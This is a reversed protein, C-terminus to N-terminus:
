FPKRAVIIMNSSPFDLLTGDTDLIESVPILHEPYEAQLYQESQEITFGFEKLKRCYDTETLVGYLEQTEREASEWGWTLTYLLEMASALTMSYEFESLKTFSSKRLGETESYFPAKRKYMELYKVADKNKLRVIVKKSWETPMVGDRIILKGGPKLLKYFEKLSNDLSDMSLKGNIPDGYSYVEHLISCCIITDYTEDPILSELEYTYAELTNIKPFNNKIRKVAESSGDLATVTNGSIRLFESLEGGGAGVDLINGKNIYSVIRQKDGISSAMRNFYLEGQTETLM